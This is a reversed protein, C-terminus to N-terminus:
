VIEVQAPCQAFLCHKEGCLGKDLSVILSVLLVVKKVEEQRNKRKGQAGAFGEKQLKQEPSQLFLSCEVKRARARGWRVGKPSGAKGGM